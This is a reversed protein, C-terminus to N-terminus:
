SLERHKAKVVDPIGYAINKSMSKGLTPCLGGYFSYIISPHIFSNKEVHQANGVRIPVSCYYRVNCVYLLFLLTNWAWEHLPAEEPKTYVGLRVEPNLNESRIDAVPCEQCCKSAIAAATHM